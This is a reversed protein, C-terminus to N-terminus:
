SAKLFNITTCGLNYCKLDVFILKFSSWFFVGFTVYFQERYIGEHLQVGIYLGNRGILFTM